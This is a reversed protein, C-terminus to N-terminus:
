VKDVDESIASLRLLRQSFLRLFFVPVLLTITPMEEM